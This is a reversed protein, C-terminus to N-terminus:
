PYQKHKIDIADNSVDKNSLLDNNILRPFINELTQCSDPHEISEISRYFCKQM